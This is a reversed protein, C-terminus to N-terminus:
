FSESMETMQNKNLEIGNATPESDAIFYYYFLVVLFLNVLVLVIMMIKRNRNREETFSVQRQKSDLEAKMTGIKSSVTQLENTKYQIVTGIREVDHRSREVKNSMFTIIEKLQFLITNLANRSEEIKPRLTNEAYSTKWEKDASADSRHQMYQNYLTYYNNLENMYAKRYEKVLVSVRCSTDEEACYEM